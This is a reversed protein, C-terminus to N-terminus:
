EDCLSAVMWRDEFWVHDESRPSSSSQSVTLPAVSLLGLGVGVTLSITGSDACCAVPAPSGGEDVFSPLGSGEVVVPATSSTTAWTSSSTGAFTPCTSIALM